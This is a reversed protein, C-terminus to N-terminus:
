EEKAVGPPDPRTVDIANECNVIDAKPWHWHHVRNGRRWVFCFYERGSDKMKEQEV